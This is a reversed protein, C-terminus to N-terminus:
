SSTSSRFTPEDTLRSTTTAFGIAVDIMGGHTGPTAQATPDPPAQDLVDEFGSWRSPIRITHWARGGTAVGVLHLQGKNGACDVRKFNGVDQGNAYEVDAFPSFTRPPSELSHWLHGDGTVGCVQLEELGTTPNVVSACAVDTFDGAEKGSTMEIDTWGEFHDTAPDFINREVQGNTETACIHLKGEVVAGSVRKFRAVRGRDAGLPGGSQGTPVTAAPGRFVDPPRWLGDANQIMDAFTGDALVILDHVQFGNGGTPVAVEKVDGLLPWVFDPGPTAPPPIHTDGLLGWQDDTPAGRRQSIFLRSTRLLGDPNAGVVLACCPNYKLSQTAPQTGCSTAGALLALACLASALRAVHGGM